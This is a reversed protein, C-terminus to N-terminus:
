ALLAALGHHSGPLRSIAPMLAAPDLAAAAFLGEGLPLDSLRMQPLEARVAAASRRVATSSQAARDGLVGLRTLLRGIGCGEAKAWAELRVWSQLFCADDTSPLMGALVENGALERAAVEILARREGRMRVTRTRELDVGIEGRAAVAILAMGPVHALSFSVGCGDLRPKGHACRAFAVARLSPGAARELLLRLAIHAALWEAAGARDAISDAQVREDRSLRPTDRELELLAPGSAEVDLRWLELGAFAGYACESERTTTRQSL